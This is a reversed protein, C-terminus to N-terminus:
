VIDKVAIKMVIADELNTVSREVDSIKFHKQLQAIKEETLLASMISQDTMTGNIQATIQHVVDPFSGNLVVVIDLNSGKPNYMRNIEVVNKRMSLHYYVESQFDKGRMKGESLNNQAKLIATQLSFFSFVYKLDIVAGITPDVHIADINTVNTFFHFFSEMRQQV